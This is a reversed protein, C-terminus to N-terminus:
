EISEFIFLSGLYKKSLFTFISSFSQFFNRKITFLPNEDSITIQCKFVFKSCANVTKICFEDFDEWTRKGYIWLSKIYQGSFGFIQVSPYWLM